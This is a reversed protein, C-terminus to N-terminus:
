SFQLTWPSVLLQQLHPGALVSIWAGILLFPGFPLASKMSYRRLVMGAIAAIAGAIFGIVLGAAVAQVSSLGLAFGIGVTLKVDGLGMGGRTVLSLVLMSFAPVLGCALATLLRQPNADTVWSALAFALEVLMLGYTIKNPLRYVTLDTWILPMTAVALPLLALGALSLGQNAVAVFLAATGIETLPYYVSIRASCAHCRGRQILWSIVPINQRWGLKAGCNRCHSADGAVSEDQLIRTALVTGFSGFVLGFIAAFILVLVHQLNALETLQNL